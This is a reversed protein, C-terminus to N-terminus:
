EVCPTPEFVFSAVHAESFAERMLAPKGRNIREEGAQSGRNSASFAQRQRLLANRGQLASITYWRGIRTDVCRARHAVGPEGGAGSGLWLLRGPAAGVGFGCM